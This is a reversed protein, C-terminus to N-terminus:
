KSCIQSCNLINGNSLVDRVEALVKYMRADVTYLNMILGFAHRFKFLIPALKQKQQDQQRGDESIQGVLNELQLVKFNGPQFLTVQSSFIGVKLNHGM